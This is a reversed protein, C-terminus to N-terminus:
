CSISRRTTICPHSFLVLNHSFYQVYGAKRKQYRLWHKWLHMLPHDQCINKCPIGSIFRKMTLFSLPMPPVALGIDWICLHYKVRLTAPAVCWNLYICTLDGKLSFYFKMCNAILQFLLVILYYGFYVLYKISFIYILLASENAVYVYVRVNQICIRTEFLHMGKFINFIQSGIRKRRM